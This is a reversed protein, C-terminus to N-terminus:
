GKSQTRSETPTVYHRTAPTVTDDHQNKLFVESAVRHNWVKMGSYGPNCDKQEARYEDRRWERQEQSSRVWRDTQRDSSGGLSWARPGESSHGRHRCVAQTGQSKRCM